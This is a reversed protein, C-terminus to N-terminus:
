DEVDDDVGIYNWVTKGLHKAFELNGRLLAVDDNNMVFAVNNLDIRGVPSCTEVVKIEVNRTKRRL